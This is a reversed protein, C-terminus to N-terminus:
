QLIMPPARMPELGRIANAYPARLERVIRRWRSGLFARARRDAARVFQQNAECVVKWGDRGGSAEV